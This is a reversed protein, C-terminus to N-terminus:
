VNGISENTPKWIGQVKGWGSNFGPKVLNIEDAYDPGNETDWLIGTLPDFSIGFSSRIGYAYYKSINDKKGFIVESLKGDQKIRM